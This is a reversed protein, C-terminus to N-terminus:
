EVRGCRAQRVREAAEKQGLIMEVLRRFALRQKKESAVIRRRMSIGDPLLEQEPGLIIDSVHEPRLRRGICQEM